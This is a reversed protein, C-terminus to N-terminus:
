NSGNSSKLMTYKGDSISSRLLLTDTDEDFQKADCLNSM